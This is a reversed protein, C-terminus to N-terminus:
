DHRIVLRFVLLEQFQRSFSIDFKLVSINERSRQDALVFLTSSKINFIYVATLDLIFSM